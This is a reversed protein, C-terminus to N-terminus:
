HHSNFFFTKIAYFLFYTSFLLLLYGLYKTIKGARKANFIEKMKNTILVLLLFYSAAGMTVVIFFIIEYRTEMPIFIQNKRLFQLCIMWSVIGLPNILVMMLGKLLAWRKRKIRTVLNEEKKEIFRSDKIAIIGLTCTIIATFLFFAAELNPSSTFPSIGFFALLAWTADGFAAGIAVSIATSYQKQVADHFIELNVPGIPIGLAFSIWFCAFYFIIISLM